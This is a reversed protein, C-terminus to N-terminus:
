NYMIVLHYYISLLLFVIKGSVSGAFYGIKEGVFTGINEKQM